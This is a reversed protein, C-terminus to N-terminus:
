AIESLLMEPVEWNLRSTLLLGTNMVVRAGLEDFNFDVQMLGIKELALAIKERASEECCVMFFGGGGAGTIKGGYAGAKLAAQYYEDIRANSVGAAFRKKEVWNEHLLRGFEEMNGTEISQKVLPVMAKVRHLAEITPGSKKLSSESQKALIRNANRSQGTYFLM